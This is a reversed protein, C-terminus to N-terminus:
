GDAARELADVLQITLQAPDFATLAYDRGPTNLGLTGAAHRAALVTLREVLADSDGFAVWEVHPLPHTSIVHRAHVLGERVTAGLADHATLRLVVSSERYLGEMSSVWGLPEVNPPHDRLDHGGVVRFHAEPLRRAAALLQEGGYEASRGAPLYTMVTFREPLPSPEDIDPLDTPFLVSRAQIGVAGLEEALWPAGALHHDHRAREFPHRRLSGARADALTRQVDTGIWYYAAGASPNALRVLRWVADFGRGRLTPAGPRFGVRLIADAGGLARPRGIRVLLPGARMGEVRDSAHLALLGLLRRVWYPQGCLAVRIM